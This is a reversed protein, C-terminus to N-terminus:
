VVKVTEHSRTHGNSGSSAHTARPQRSSLKEVQAGAEKLQQDTSLKFRAVIQQLQVATEALSQASASVEEVQATMEEASASVEEVAASNQESVSAINEIAQTVEASGAAMEETAATNEEVVASVADTAAVLENSLDGMTGSESAIEAVQRNVEKAASLIESLALGAQNAQDVGREVEASGESMATVADSVTRQIDKVLTGIEKTAQASKEALKRVEDAVVAFGKGHEGARAAEIAANLALLNTQSAIDEITDVIVSIQESRAGMEQVKQASLNVKEQITEMGKITASVTQAGGQAVEAAKESGKSGAQANAAVRRVAETIQGTREAAQNVANTQDQAGKAVGTIAQSMQEVSAATRNVSESQQATGRAVQQITSSIQAIAQGAESAASALQDSASGLAFASETVEGVLNRLNDVMGNFANGLVDRSSIPPVNQTLDGVALKEAVGAMTQLYAIMRTFSNAMDGMEDKSTVTIKHDLEGASIGEAIGAMQKAANSISRAIFFAVSFGLIISFLTLGIILNRTQAFVLDSQEYYDLALAEKSEVLKGMSEGVAAAVVGADRITQNAEEDKNEAALQLVKDAEVIYADYDTMAQTFIERAEDTVILAEFAAMNSEFKAELEEAIKVQAMIEQDDTALVGSRVALRIGDLNAMADKVYVLGQLHNEYLTNLMGNIKNASDFGAYGVVGTFVLVSAFALLLKNRIDM